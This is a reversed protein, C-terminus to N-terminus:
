DFAEGDIRYHTAVKIEDFGDLVDLKTLAVGDIGSTKV